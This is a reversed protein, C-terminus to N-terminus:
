QPTGQPKQQSSIRERGDMHAPCGESTCRLPARPSKNNFRIAGKRGHGQAGESTCRLPARPSKNNFRNAGKREHASPVGLKHVQPTGQLKKQSSIRERGDM